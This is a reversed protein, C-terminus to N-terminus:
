LVQRMTSHIPGFTIDKVMLPVLSKFPFQDVTVTVLNVVGAGTPQNLHDACNTRDCIQVLSTKLGPVLAAGSCTRNGYVALCKAVGIQTADGPSQQSLHRSADRVGKVITNYQFIARGYETIGFALVTLPIMVIGLEVAAVGRQRKASKTMM